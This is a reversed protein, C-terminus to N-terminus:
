VSKLLKLQKKLQLLQDSAESIKDNFEEKLKVANKSRGFFELNNRLTALDNEAKTIQKRLQQEKHYLKREAQPDNKLGSLQIEIGGSRKACCEIRKYLRYIQCSSVFISEKYLCGCQKPVFGIENFRAQLNRFSRLQEV